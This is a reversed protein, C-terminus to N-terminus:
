NYRSHLLFLREICAVAEEIEWSFSLIPIHVFLICTNYVANSAMVTDMLEPNAINDKGPTDLRLLLEEAKEGHKVQQGLEVSLARHKYKVLAEWTRDEM